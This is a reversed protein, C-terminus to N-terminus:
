EPSKRKKPRRGAVRATEPTFRNHGTPKKLWAEYKADRVIFVRGDIDAATLHGARIAVHVAWRTVGREAAATAIRILDPKM